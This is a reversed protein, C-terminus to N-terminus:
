GNIMSNLRTHKITLHQREFSHLLRQVFKKSQSISLTATENTKICRLFIVTASEAAPAELAGWVRISTPPLLLGGGRGLFGMRAILRGRYEATRTETRGEWRWNRAVVTCYNETANKCNLPFHRLTILLGPLTRCAAWVQLLLREDGSLAAKNWDIVESFPLVWDNSLLVPICASQLSELFRHVCMCCPRLLVWSYVVIQTLSHSLLKKVACWCLIHWETGYVILIM